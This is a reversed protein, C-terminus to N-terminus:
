LGFKRRLLLHIFQSTFSCCKVKLAKGMIKEREKGDNVAALRWRFHQFLCCSRRSNSTRAVKIMMVGAEAVRVNFVSILIQFEHRALSLSQKLM